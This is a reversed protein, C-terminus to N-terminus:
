YEKLAEQAESFQGIWNVAREIVEWDSEDGGCAFAINKYMDEDDNAWERMGYMMQQNIFEKVEEEEVEDSFYYDPIDFYVQRVWGDIDWHELYCTLQGDYIETADCNGGLLGETEIWEDVLKIIREETMM